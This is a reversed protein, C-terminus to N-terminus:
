LSTKQYYNLALLQWEIILKTIKRMSQCRLDIYQSSQITGSVYPNDDIDQRLRYDVMRILSRYQDMMTEAKKMSQTLRHEKYRSLAPLWSLQHFFTSILTSERTTLQQYHLCREMLAYQGKLELLHHTM